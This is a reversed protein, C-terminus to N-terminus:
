RGRPRSVLNALLRWGGPVGAPVERFLVLGVYTWTGQGVKTDVLIGHKEGANLPFPDTSALLQEYRPDRADLFQIGREQVWGEWDSAGIRNPTSLLPNAADLVRMPANEDTIRESTVAAPWPAFPSTEVAGPVPPVDPSVRNFAARNYMVVLHGGAEVWRMLRGQSSRLDPRTEYARIGTVITTFHKLDSFALDDADLLTVSVGLQRIADALADGSGMVYGVSVGPQTRVDLALLRVAAPQLLQRREIHDYAVEEVGERYERGARTAVASVVHTGAAITAPPTVRFRAGAEEGEYAFRLEAGAPEVLWGPPAELRVSAGESGKAFSRVFARVEIPRRSGGLPIASIEPDIRVSLNPVVQVVHRKEGGVFPGAYRWVAPVTVVALTGGIRCEARAVVRPPSWPLTGDAPLVLVNRDRDKAKRWYPQSLRADAAATVVFRVKRSGGGAVAGTGEDKREVTWGTPVQLELREVELPRSSENWLSVVVGFPQGPTVLGDDARADLTLGQALVLAARVDDEQDRLRGTIEARGAADGVMTDLQDLGARIAALAAVLAPVAKEPALPDFAGRAADVKTQLLGVEEGLAASSPAFRALGRLSTDIGDLIDSEAGTVKPEADVLSYLAEAPGPDAVIQRVGQCRHMARELSGEQQWTMGLLPDYVGTAVHVPTGPVEGSGGVAGQYIKRTQWPRLGERVQEPFRSPDAAVRFAEAALRAVAQHHQGGENSELPLTLIVDPRFARVVRVVDELTDEHGWKEFTEEVSFSYGFEYARGFYQEVADYRHLAMLEQTRLVGLAEFLEPGIANQGGEGRTVTLLATRVGLGRSLRVLVGNNEDDPHATVYLVRGTVGLRRLALGLGNAGRDIDLPSLPAEAWALPALALCVLLALVVFLRRRHDM